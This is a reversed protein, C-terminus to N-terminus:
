TETMMSTKQRLFSAKSKGHTNDANMEDAGLSILVLELIKKEDKARARLYERIEVFYILQTEGYAYSDESKFKLIQMKHQVDRFSFKNKLMNEIEKECKKIVKDATTLLSVDKLKFSSFEYFGNSVPATVPRKGINNTAEAGRQMYNDNILM